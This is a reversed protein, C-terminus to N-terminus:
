PHLMPLVTLDGYCLSNEIAWVRLLHGSGGSSGADSTVLLKIVLDTTSQDASEM